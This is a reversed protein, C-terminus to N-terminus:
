FLKFMDPQDDASSKIPKDKYHIDDHCKNCVVMLGDIPNEFQRCFMNRLFDPHWVDPIQEIHHVALCSREVKSLDGDNKIKFEKDGIRHKTKCVECTEYFRHRGEGTNKVRSRKLANARIKSKLWIQRAASRLQTEFKAM